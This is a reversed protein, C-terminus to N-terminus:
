RIITMDATLPYRLDMEGSLTEADKGNILFYVTRIRPINLVLSNVISYVALHETRIAGGLGTGTEETLDVYATEGEVFLSRLGATKPLTRGLNGNPGGILANMVSVAIGRPTDVATITREEATLYVGDTTTFYLRVTVQRSAAGAAFVTATVVAALFGIGIGAPRQRAM